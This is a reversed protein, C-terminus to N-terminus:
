HTALRWSPRSPPTGGDGRRIRVAEAAHDIGREDNRQVSWHRCRWSRGRWRSPRVRLSRARAVADGATAVGDDLRGGGALMQALTMLAEILEPSTALEGWLAVAESAVEIARDWRDVYAYELRSNWSGSRAGQRTRGCARRERRAGRTNEAGPQGGRRPSTRPWAVCVLLDEVTGDVRARAVARRRAALEDASWPTLRTPRSSLVRVPEVVIQQEQADLAGEM